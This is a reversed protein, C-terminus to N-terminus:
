HRAIITRLPASYSLRRIILMYDGLHLPYQVIPAPLNMSHLQMRFEAIIACTFLQMTM